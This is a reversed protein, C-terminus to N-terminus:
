ATQSAAQQPSFGAIQSAFEETLVAGILIYTYFLVFDLFGRRGMTFADPDKASRNYRHHALHDDKFSVFTVLLPIM